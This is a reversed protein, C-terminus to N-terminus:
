LTKRGNAKCAVLFTNVAREYVHRVAPYDDDVIATQQISKWARALNEMAAFETNQKDGSPAAFFMHVTNPDIRIGNVLYGIGLMEADVTALNEEKRSEARPEPKAGGVMFRDQMWGAGLLFAAMKEPDYQEYHRAAAHEIEKEPIM